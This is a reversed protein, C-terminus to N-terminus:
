HSPLSPVAAASPAPLSPASAAGLSARPRPPAIVRRRRRTSPPRHRPVPAATASPLPAVPRPRPPAVTHFRRHRPLFLSHSLLLSLIVVYAIYASKASHGRDPVRCLNKKLKLISKASHGRDPVRCLERQRTDGPRCEAFIIENYKASHWRTSVRCLSRQRIDDKSV